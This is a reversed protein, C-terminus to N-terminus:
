AAPTKFTFMLASLVNNKPTVPEIAAWLAASRALRSVLCPQSTCTTIVASASRNMVGSGNLVRDRWGTTVSRYSSSSPQFGACM